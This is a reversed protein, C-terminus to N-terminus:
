LGQNQGVTIIDEQLPFTHTLLFSFFFHFFHLNPDMLLQPGQIYLFSGTLNLVMSPDLFMQQSSTYDTGPHDLRAEDLTRHDKSLDTLVSLLKLTRPCDLSVLDCIEISIWSEWQATHVQTQTNLYLNNRIPLIPCLPVNVDPCTQPGHVRYTRARCSSRCSKSSPWRITKSTRTPSRYDSATQPGASNELSCRLWFRLLWLFWRYGTVM